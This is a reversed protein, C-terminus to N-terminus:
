NRWEFEISPSKAKSVQTEIFHLQIFAKVMKGAAGAHLPTAPRDRQGSM